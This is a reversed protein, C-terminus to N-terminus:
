VRMESKNTTKHFVNLFTPFRILKKGKRIHCTLPNEQLDRASIEAIYGIYTFLNFGDYICALTKRLLCIFIQFFFFLGLNFMFSSVQKYGLNQLSECQLVFSNSKINFYTCHFM